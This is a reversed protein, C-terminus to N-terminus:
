PEGRILISEYGIATHRHIQRDRAKFLYVCKGLRIPFEFTMNDTTAPHEKDGLECGPDPSVVVPVPFRIVQILGAKSQCVTVVGPPQLAGNCLVSAQLTAEKTVFDIFAWSHRGKAEEYGGIDLPCMRTDEIGPVPRYEYKYSRGDSFIGGSVKEASFERHCSSITLLDLKGKAKIEIKYSDARPLVGAGEFEQDGVKIRIDRKYHLKPDLEQHVLSACGFHLTLAM